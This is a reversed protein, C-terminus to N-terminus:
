WCFTRNFAACSQTRGSPPAPTSARPYGTGAQSTYPPTTELQQNSTTSARWCTSIRSPSKTFALKRQLEWRTVTEFFLVGGEFTARRVGGIGEHPLTAEVPRPFGIRHTWSDRLEAPRIAPVLKIQDCIIGPPAAIEIETAVTWM